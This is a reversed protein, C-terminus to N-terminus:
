YSHVPTKNTAIDYAIRLYSDYPANCGDGARQVIAKRVEGLDLNEALCGPHEDIWKLVERYVEEGHGLPFPANKACHQVAALERLGLANAYEVNGQAMVHFLSGGGKRGTWEISLTKDPAITIATM